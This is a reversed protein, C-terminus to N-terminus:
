LTFEPQDSPCGGPAYNKPLIRNAKMVTVVERVRDSLVEARPIKWPVFDINQVNHLVGICFLAELAHRSVGLIEAAECGSCFDNHDQQPQCLIHHQLRFNRVRDQTWRLGRPTLLKKM